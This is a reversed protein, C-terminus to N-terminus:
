PAKLGDLFAVVRKLALRGADTDLNFQYEHPLAPRTDDPFFLADVRIGRRGAETVLLRSHALLFDGNGASVFLPPLDPSLHRAVSFGAPEPPTTLDRRGTYAWGTAAFFLGGLGSRDVIAIDYPGCFLVAGVLRARDMGPTVGVLRAYDASVLSNATQAAIHAGASDGALVVREMDIGLRAAHGVLHALAAHTQRVPTPYRHGPAISYRIGVVVFGQGALVKLYNGIEEKSGSVFGGGHIWVITPRQGPPPTAPRHIDLYAEPDSPDYRENARTTVGPPVHRALAAATRAGGAEFAWRIVTASPWPSALFAAATVAALVALVALTRVIIRALRGM